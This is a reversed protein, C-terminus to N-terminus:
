DKIIERLKELIRVMALTDLRCYALLNKRTEAIEEPTHNALDAFAASAQDGKHIQDLAAYNLEPDGPCMAPLVYKISYSGMFNKDYYLKNSFPTMLDRINDHIKMLHGSLDDFMSALKKIVGKEFSMNYALVRVNDPIDRCLSEALARRPDTGEKALFERHEPKEGEKREIHLSYQFSLQEYPSMGDYPPIAFSTTEFDLHYLPFTFDKLCERIAEKDAYPTRNYFESEVQLLQSKNLKPKRSIIDNFSVIGSDYLSYKTSSRMGAIDFVSPSPINRYCYNKFVCQYPTNCAATLERDPEDSGADDVYDCIYRINEYIGPLLNEVTATCDELMLFKHLDLEGYRVYSSDIHLNFVNKIKLGCGRLVYCQFAMDHLYIDSIHTSSKVEVIDWGDGNKRLIDVACYLNEFFFSAECINETGCEILRKTEDVMDQKDDSYPVETFDGFYGMALDGVLNGTELIAENGPDVAEEPMHKEMWLIKPCQLGRCYKSKSLNM